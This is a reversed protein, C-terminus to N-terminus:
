SVNKKWSEAYAQKSQQYNRKNIEVRRAWKEKDWIEIRNVAGIFMIDKNLGAMERLDGPILIRGADDFSIKQAGSISYGVIDDYNPDMPSLNKKFDELFAVWGAPTYAVLCELDRVIENTVFMHDVSMAVLQDRFTKPLSTRGQGNLSHEFRGNFVTLLQKEVNESM